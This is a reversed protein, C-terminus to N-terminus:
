HTFVEEHLAKNLQAIACTIETAIYRDAHPTVLGLGIAKNVADLIDFNSSCNLEEGLWDEIMTDLECSSMPKGSQNLFHYVLFVEKIEEDSDTDLLQQIAGSNNDLSKFYLNETLVKLFKLRRNKLAGFQRWLHGGLALLGAGLALMAGQDITVSKDSLGLWFAVLSGILLLTPALKTLLVAAGGAVAPVGIMLKDRLRMKVQPEPLLIEIDHRPVNQFLKIHIDSGRTNKSFVLAVRDYNVFEMRREGFRGFWRKVTLVQETAGRRFVLLRDYDSLNVSVRLDFLAQEDIARQVEQMSLELYNAASLLGSMQAFFAEKLASREDPTLEARNQTVTPNFHRYLSKLHDSDSRFRLAYYTRLQREVTSLADGYQTDHQQTCAQAIDGLSATIYQSEEELM